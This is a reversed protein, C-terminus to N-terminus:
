RRKLAVTVTWAGGGCGGGDKPLYQGLLYPRSTVADCCTIARAITLADDAQVLAAQTREAPTPAEGRPGGTPQCRYVGVELRAALVRACKMNTSADPAPFRESSSFLGDLRVWAMGCSEGRGGCSCWDAPAISGPMLSCSCVVSGGATDELATCLCARIDDMLPGLLDDM